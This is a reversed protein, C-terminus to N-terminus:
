EAPYTYLRLAQGSETDQVMCHFAWGYREYFSTLETVLYARCIGGAQLDAWARSLLSGGIGRGRRDPETYLACLNPSLDKRNHFDNEIIGLGAIIRAGELALYWQPVPAHNALCAEISQMYDALPVQWKEHFWAAASQAMDPRERLSVIEYQM